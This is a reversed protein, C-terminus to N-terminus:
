IAEKWNMHIFLYIIRLDCPILVAAAETFVGSQPGRSENGHSRVRSSHKGSMLLCSPRGPRIAM